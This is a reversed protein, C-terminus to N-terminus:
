SLRLDSNDRLVARYFVLGGVCGFWGLLATSFFFLEFGSRQEDVKGSGAQKVQRVGM